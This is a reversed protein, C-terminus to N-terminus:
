DHNTEEVPESLQNTSVNATPQNTSTQSYETQLLNDARSKIISNELLGNAGYGLVYAGSFISGIIALRKAIGKPGLQKFESVLYHLVSSPIKDSLSNDKESPYTIESFTKPDKQADLSGIRPNKAPLHLGKDLSACYKYIGEIGVLSSETKLLINGWDMLDIEDLKSTILQGLLRGELPLKRDKGTKSILTTFIQDAVKETNPKYCGEEKLNSDQLFSYYGFKDFELKARRSIFDELTSIEKPTGLRKIAPSLWEYFSELYQQVQASSSEGSSNVLEIQSYRGDRSKNLLSGNNIGESFFYEPFDGRIVVQQYAGLILALSNIQDENVISDGLLEYRDGDKDRIALGRSLPTLGFLHFPTSVGRFFTSSECTGHNTLNWHMSYGTHVQDSASSDVVAERGLMLLDTLRTAFGRNIRVPPTLIEIESGDVYFGLGKDTRISTDSIYFCKDFKSRLRNFSARDFGKQKGEVYTILENEIGIYSDM